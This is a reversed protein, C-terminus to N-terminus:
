GAPQLVSTVEVLGEGYEADVWRQYRGDDHFVTLEVKNERNGAGVQILGPLGILSQQVRELEAQSHAVEVICLMGGWVERLAREAGTPDDAVYVSVVTEAPDRPGPAGDVTSVATLAYGPLGEAAVTLATLQEQSVLAPDEVRWGGSPEPCPITLDFTHEGPTPPQVETPTFSDGDFSGTLLFAGWRVGESESYGDHETWDWGPVDADDCTPPSGFSAGGFCLRAGSGDDSVIVAQSTTVPGSAAPVATPREALGADAVSRQEGCGAVAFVVAISFTTAALRRIM